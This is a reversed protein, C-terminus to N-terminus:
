FSKLVVLYNKFKFNQDCVRVCSRCHPIIVMRRLFNEPLLDMEQDLQKHLTLQTPTPSIVISMLNPCKEVSLKLLSPCSVCAEACFWKLNPLNHLELCELKPFSIDELTGEGAEKIDLVEEMVKCEYIRLEKLRALRRVSTSSFLFRLNHCNGVVLGKLNQMYTKSPLHDAWLKTDNNMRSLKLEELHDPFM